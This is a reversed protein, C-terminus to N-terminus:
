RRAVPHALQKGRGSGAASSLLSRLGALPAGVASGVNIERLDDVAVPAMGIAEGIITATEWARPLPSAFLADISELRSLAEGTRAAQQRGLETLVVDTSWGSIVKERNSTSEGHRVLLLRTPRNSAPTM